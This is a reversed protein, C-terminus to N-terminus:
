RGDEHYPSTRRPVDSHANPVPKDNRSSFLMEEEAADALAVANTFMAENLTSGVPATAEAFVGHVKGGPFSLSMYDGVMQGSSTAPLWNPNVGKSLKKARSWTAGGTTSTIYGVGLKCNSTCNALPFFYYSLAIRATSGSTTTDVAFGPIFHDVTSSVADIPIRAPATWTTGDTSTSMVIDNSACGARFSCDAWAVYVTGAGDIQAAILPFARMGGGVGHQNIVAFTVPTSWSTGGNTSKFAMVSSEFPDDLPVIVTGNPQVLPIGGTGSANGATKKAGWTKGGDKSTSMQILDGQAFDDWTVYCNGYFHSSATNDCGIWPKDYFGGAEVVSVTAPNKWTIGDTSSSVLVAAGHPGGAESMALVEALWLQHKVDFVIAPDTARDYKGTGEVKTIGPLNGHTWTAGGDTSTSFGVDSAGGDSFRGVQFVSVITNGVAFTDPEVETAHMSTNNTFTDTSIQTLTVFPAQASVTQVAILLALLM